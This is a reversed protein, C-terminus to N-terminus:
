DGAWVVIEEAQGAPLKPLRPRRPKKGARVKAWYGRPPLPIKLRRCQKRLGNDSMGWSEAVKTVPESWVRDYLEKRTMRIERGGHHNTWGFEFRRPLPRAARAKEKEEKSPNLGFKKRVELFRTPRRQRYEWSEEDPRELFGVKTMRRRMAPTRALEHLIEPAVYDEKALTKVIEIFTKDSARILSSRISAIDGALSSEWRLGLQFLCKLARISSATMWSRIEWMATRIRHRVLDDPDSPPAIQWLHQIVRVSGAWRYLDDFDDKEPDPGLKELIELHGARSAEYVASYRYEDEDDSGYRLDPAPAHPDAGAWLCLGVGRGNGEGAHYALAANLHEQFKPDTKRHKRAFGFLPTNSTHHALTWALSRGATLDVGLDRFRQFLDSDYTDFLEALDVDNPDAGWDLLLDLLDMRGSQLAADLPSYEELNPDYGNCLLLVTLAHDERELAIELAFNFHRRSVLSPDELQLPKGAQIWREVEYLRSEKCLQHLEKLAEANSTSRTM